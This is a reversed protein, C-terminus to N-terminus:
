KSGYNKTWRPGTGLNPIELDCSLIKQSQGMMNVHMRATELAKQIGDYHEWCGFLFDFEVSDATQGERHMRGLLQEWAIAGGSISTILGRNFRQLNRGTGNAAVSAICSTGTFAEIEIGQSDVGGAGFYPLGTRRQLEDAFFRHETWVIGNNEELWKECAKLASDDHWVPRSNVQFSPRIAQWAELEGDDDIEGKLVANAVQLESDLERSHKLTERVFSAWTRRAALWEDPAPPSWIYHLGLSLERAVRWVETAMSLAFGDPREWAGRLRRFNAETAENVQFELGNIYLSGGYTDTAASAVVAPTDVLRKHFGRRARDIDDGEGSAWQMLVGPSRRSFAAVKDDLAEAWENLVEYEKPIPAKTKHTWAIIHAFDHLSRNMVTGSMACVRVDPHEKLYRTVRRTVAAHKNKVKHCEDLILLDPQYMELERAASVRGLMEYSFIRLNKVVRWDKAYVKREAETKRILKAPVILVPRKAELVRPLLLSLLTKGTGVQMPFFGGGEHGAEYLSLAQLPFLRGAGTPTRLHETMRDTVDYPHRRVLDRIRAFDPSFRVEKPSFSM